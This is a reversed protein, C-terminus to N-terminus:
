KPICCALPVPGDCGPLPLPFYGPKCNPLPDLPMCEGKVSVCTVSPPPACDGPCNCWSEGPGCQGNGCFSCVHSAGPQCICVKNDASPKCAEIVALGACCKGAPDFDQFMTGDGFCDVKCEGDHAKSVGASEMECQNGYTQGDCGCVPSYYDPCLKPVVKCTGPFTMDVCKGAPFQCYQGPPCSVGNKSCGIQSEPCDEPCNCNNEWGSQCQGDGCKGCIMVGVPQACAGGSPYAPSMLELGACCPPAEPSVPVKEGEKACLQTPMCCQQDDPCEIPEALSGAPCAFGGPFCAGGSLTCPDQPPEGGCDEPCNCYNEGAGCLGNGCNACMFCLCNVYMCDGTESVEAYTIPQLEDCCPSFEYMGEFMVGEPVCEGSGCDAQCNCPNEWPECSGNGCDSCINGGPVVGCQGPSWDTWPISSLGECCPLEEPGVGQPQGAAACEGSPPCCYVDPGCDSPMIGVEGNACMPEETCIGGADMCPFPKECDQPCNCRNEGDGCQGDGCQVCVWCPCNPQSCTYDPWCFRDSCAVGQEEAVAVPIAPPCCKGDPDPDEFQGGEEVCAMCGPVPEHVCQGAACKDATCDDFDDCDAHNQCEPPHSDGTGTEGGTGDGLDATGDPILDPVADPSVGPDSRQDDRVVDGGANGDATASDADGEPFLPSEVLFSCGGLLLLLCCVRTSLANNM